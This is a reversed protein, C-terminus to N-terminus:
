GDGDLDAIVLGNPGTGCPYSVGPAFSTNGLTSLNQFISITNDNYNGVVIDPKGDGNLDEVAIGWPYNGARIDMRSAFSNTTLVGPSSTNRLVSVLNSAGNIAMIDLRGDGDLDAVTIKSPNCCPGSILPLVLRPAFALTRNTSINQYISIQGSESDAALLDARGDGDLDAICIDTPQSGTPLNIRAALTSNNIQGNGTFTPLFPQDSYATLGNVTVTIPAYTAGLPVTVTLNSASAAIVPARVAGFYVTNSSAVSSFNTGNITVVTENSGSTPAINFIAPEGATVLAPVCKGSSGANYIATIECSLLARNYLSIEDIDGLFAFNNQGDNLNGIGVGPSDGAVLTGFPRVSTVTQAALMANTYIRMTGSAGDLTAALHIWQNYALTTEVNASNGNADTIVFQVTNNHQMSLIYPDMGPRNDGRWFIISGDGRPRVWGEITLSNTLAYAPRDPVQVGVYPGYDVSNCAFAQGVVGTTYTVNVAVGNNSSVSDITNGDGKWWGVIGAPSPTCDANADVVALVAILSFIGFLTKASKMPQGEM